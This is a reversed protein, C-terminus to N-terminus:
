VDRMLLTSTRASAASSMSCARSKEARLFGANTIVVSIRQHGVDLAEREMVSDMGAMESKVPHQGM